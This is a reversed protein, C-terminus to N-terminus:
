KHMLEIVNSQKLVVTCLMKYTKLLRRIVIRYSFDEVCYQLALIKDSPVSAIKLMIILFLELWKVHQIGM